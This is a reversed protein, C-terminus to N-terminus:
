RKQEKMKAEKNMINIFIRRAEENTIKYHECWVDNLVSFIIPALFHIYFEEITLTLEDVGTKVHEKAKSYFHEKFDNFIKFM